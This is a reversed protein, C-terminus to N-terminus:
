LNTQANAIKLVKKFHKKEVPQVSLRSGKQTVRMEELAPEEKLTQLSVENDFKEVFEVDVMSWRPDEKKSKPDYYESKRDFQTPDAYAHLRPPRARHDARYTETAQGIQKLNAACPSRRGAQRAYGLRRVVFYTPLIPLLLGLVVGAAAM